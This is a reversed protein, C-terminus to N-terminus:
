VVPLAKPLWAPRAGEFAEIDPLNRETLGV